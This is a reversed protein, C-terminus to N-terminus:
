VFWVALDMRADLVFLMKEVDKWVKELLLMEISNKKRRENSIVMVSKSHLENHSYEFIPENGLFVRWNIRRMKVWKFFTRTAYYAIKSKFQKTPRRSFYVTNEIQFTPKSHIRPIKKISPFMNVTVGLISKNETRIFNVFRYM